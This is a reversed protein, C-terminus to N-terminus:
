SRGQLRPNSSRSLFDATRNLAIYTAGFILASVQIVPVDRKGVADVLYQGLGPYVFIQEIVVVGAVMYAINLSLAQIIVGMANPMAHMLVVRSRSLGKLVAQEIYPQRMVDLLAARTMRMIYPLVALAATMVPLALASFHAQADMDPSIVSLSPLLDVNVSLLFILLYGVLFAPLSLLLLIVANCLRDLYRGQHMVAMVGLGVALPVVLCSTAGALVLTNRLRFKLTPEIPMGTTLSNGLHGQALQGLWHWYQSLAPADVGLSHRLAALAEETAGQGLIAIAVDGPLVRIGAFILVTLLWLTLLALLLQNMLPRMM